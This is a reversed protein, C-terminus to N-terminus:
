AMLGLRAAETAAEARSSIDLKRYISKIYGCVTHESIGMARGVEGARLGRAIYSLVERERPTLGNESDPRPAAPPAAARFHALLQRAVPPSLAPMGDALQRLQRIQVAEPQDKLLYGQAGAALAGVISADDGLVTTVVALCDPQAAALARLAAIGSGDPLVLDVLALDFSGSRVAQLANGVDGALRVAAGPFAAVAIGALWDRVEPIDEVVLISHM